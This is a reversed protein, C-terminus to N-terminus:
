EIRVRSRTIRELLLGLFLLVVGTVLLYAKNLFTSEYGEYFGQRMWDIGHATPLYWIIDQLEQPLASPLFVIGSLLYVPRLLVHLVKEWVLTFNNIVATFLGLGLGLLAMGLLSLMVEVPDHPLTEYGLAAMVLMMVLAVMLWTLFELVFRAVIVDLPKVVPFYLLGRNAHLASEIRAEVDRFLFFAIVATAIFTEISGGLPSAHGFHSVILTLTVAHVMPEVVAWLYGAKAEGFRTHMERLMLAMVARIHMRLAEVWTGLRQNGHTMLTESMCVGAIGKGLKEQIYRSRRM